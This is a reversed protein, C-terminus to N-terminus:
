GIAGVACPYGNRERADTLKRIMDTLKARFISGTNTLGVAIQGFLRM